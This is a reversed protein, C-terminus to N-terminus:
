RLAFDHISSADFGLDCFVAFAAEVAFPFQSIGTITAFHTGRLLRGNVAIVYADRPSVVGKDLYGKVGAANGLLKQAREKIAATWRLLLAEHPFGIAEGRPPALWDKPVGTAQPCIVEIWVRLGDLEVLFDPGDRSPRLSLGVQLMENCLLVESLRQWYRAEDGSCLETPLNPDGLGASSHRDCISQLFARIAVTRQHDGRYRAALCSRVAELQRPLNDNM